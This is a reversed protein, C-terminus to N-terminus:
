PAVSVNVLGVHGPSTVWCKADGTTNVAEKKAPVQKYGNSPTPSSPGSYLQVDYEGLNKILLKTGSTIGAGTVTAHAYLDIPTNPTLEINNLTTSM